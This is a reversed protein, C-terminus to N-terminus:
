DHRKSIATRPSIVKWWARAFRIWPPDKVTRQAFLPLREFKGAPPLQKLAECVKTLETKLHQADQEYQLHIFRAFSKNLGIEELWERHTPFKEILSHFFAQKTRAAEEEVERNTKM